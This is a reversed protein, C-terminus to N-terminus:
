HQVIVSFTEPKGSVGDNIHLYYVGNPLNSIDFQVTGDKAQQQMKLAGMSDYLRIDFTLANQQLQGSQSQTAIFEDLDISLINSAPNPFVIPSSPSSKPVVFTYIGQNVSSTGCNNKIKAYLTYGGMASFSVTAHDNYTTLSANPYSGAAWAFSYGTVDPINLQPYLNYVQNITVPINELHTLFSASSFSSFIPKRVVINGNITAEIWSEGTAGSKASVTAKTSGPGPTLNLKTNDYNWVVSSIPYIYDISYVASSTCVTTTGNIRPQIIQRRIGNQDDFLARMRAIQGNTFLNMCGDDTYDMYNMYM